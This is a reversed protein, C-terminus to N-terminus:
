NIRPPRTRRKLQHEAVCGLGTRTEQSDNWHYKDHTRTGQQSVKPGNGRGQTCAGARGYCRRHGQHDPQEVRHLGPDM